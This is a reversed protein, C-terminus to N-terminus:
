KIESDINAQTHRAKMRVKASILYLTSFECVYIIYLYTYTHTHTHLTSINMSDM